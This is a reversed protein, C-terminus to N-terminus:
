RTASPPSDPLTQMTRSEQLAERVTTAAVEPLVDAAPAGAAPGSAALHAAAGAVPGRVLALELHLHSVSLHEGDDTPAQHVALRYPTPPEALREYGAVTAHLIEALASREPDTLDLLSTAHRRSLLQVEFPHRAWFPVVAVFSRNDAVVRVPDSQERHVVECRVCRGTRRLHGTAVELERGVLPPAEPFGRVHGHPHLGDPGSPEGGDEFALVYGVGDRAGLEAYRDAWVEVVRRVGEPGIDALTTTHGAAYVVTEAAGGVPEVQYLDSSPQGPTPPAAPDAEGDGVVAVAGPPMAAGVQCLACGRAPRTAPPVPAAFEVWEGTTPDLRRESV